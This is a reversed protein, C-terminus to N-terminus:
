CMIIHHTLPFVNLTQLYDIKAISVNYKKANLMYYVLLYNNCECFQIRILIQLEVTGSYEIIHAQHSDM